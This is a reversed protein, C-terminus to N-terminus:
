ERYCLPRNQHCQHVPPWVMRMGCTMIMSSPSRLLYLPRHPHNQQVMGIIKQRRHRHHNDRLRSQRLLGSPPELSLRRVLQMRRHTDTCETIRVRARTRRHHISTDTVEPPRMGVPLAVARTDKVVLVMALAMGIMVIVAKAASRRIGSAIVISVIVCVTGKGTAIGTGTATATATVTVIGIEREIVNEIGTVIATGIVTANGNVIVIESVTGTVTVNEIDNASGTIIILRISISVIKRM